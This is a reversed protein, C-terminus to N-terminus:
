TSPGYGGYMFAGSDDPNRNKQYPITSHFNLEMGDLKLMLTLVSLERAVLLWDHHTRIEAMFVAEIWLYFWTFTPMNNM